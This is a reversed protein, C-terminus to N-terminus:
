QKRINTEINRLTELSEVLTKYYREFQKDDIILKQLDYISSYTTAKNKKRKNRKKSEKALQLRMDVYVKFFPNALKFKKANSDYRLVEEYDVSCLLELTENILSEKYSSLGKYISEITLGSLEAKSLMSLIKSGVAGISLIKDFLSEFRGSNEKVFCQISEQLINESVSGNGLIRSRKINLIHCINLCLQHAVSGINNSLEIIREINKEQISINLLRFGNTVLDRIESNSLLPINIDAVRNNLNPDLEILDKSSNVAGLCIIKTRPFHNAVDIFIKLTDAIKRREDVKLKHLDEIIWYCKIEGLFMALKEATLQYPLIRESISTSSEGIQAKLGKYEASISSDIKNTRTKEYYINLKDFANLVLQEYTTNQTCQTTIYDINQRSLENIILTTKGSGSYGFVIIQKGDTEFHNHINSILENRKVYNITAAKTPTFVDQPTIEGFLKLFFVRM